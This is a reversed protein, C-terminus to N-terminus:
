VLDIKNLYEIEINSGNVNLIAYACDGIKIEGAKLIERFILRIPGGHTVIGIVNDDSKTLLEWAKTIREKFHTYDEGGQAMNYVDKVREVEEPYKEKAEAKVMGTLIGYHNRERIDDIIEVHLGIREGIFQATEQARIRPSCYIKGIGSNSLEIALEKAQIVGEESLHDEYDGGYRDELDGTTQGHRILYIKM